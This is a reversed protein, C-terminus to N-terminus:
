LLMDYCFHFSRFLVVDAVGQVLPEVSVSVNGADIHFGPLSFTLPFTPLLSAARSAVYVRWPNIRKKIVM